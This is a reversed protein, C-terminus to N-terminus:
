SLYRDRLTHLLQHYEEHRGHGVREEEVREFEEVLRQQESESLHMDAMMYLINDEKDIHADLLQAYARAHQAAEAAASADGEKLRAVAAALGRVHGRGTDHELLMVGVPGSERPFGVQELAPFLLDEEKAHHCSDAFVRIFDLMAELDAHSVDEGRELRDAVTELVNLMIRIASHETKLVETATM